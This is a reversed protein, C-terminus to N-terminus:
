LIPFFADLGGGGGASLFGSGGGAGGLFLNLYHFYKKRRVFVITMSLYDSVTIPWISVALDHSSVYYFPM